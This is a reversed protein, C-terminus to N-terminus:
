TEGKVPDGSGHTDCLRKSHARADKPRNNANKHVNGKEDKLGGTSGLNLNVEVKASVRLHAHWAVEADWHIAPGVVASGQIGGWFLREKEGSCGCRCCDKSGTRRVKWGAGWKELSGNPAERFVRPQVPLRPAHPM